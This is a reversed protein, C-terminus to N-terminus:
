SRPGLKTSVNDGEKIKLGLYTKGGVVRGIAHDKDVSVIQIKGLYEAKPTLHFVEFINGIAVGDDTGVSVEVRLGDPGVKTVKADVDNSPLSPNGRFSKVDDSLGNSRLTDRLASVRSRLDSNNRQAADLLRQQEAIQDNLLTHQLKFANAQGTAAAFLTRLETTERLRDAAEVQAAKVTQTLTEISTRSETVEKNRRTSEEALKALEADKLKVQEAHTLKAAELDAKRAAVDANLKAIQTNLEGVKKKQKEVEVKWNTTTTYVVGSVALFGISFVMLVIVLIKGVFTM